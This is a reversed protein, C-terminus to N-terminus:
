QINQDIYDYIDQVLRMERATEEPIRVNFEKELAVVLDIGDLSDLGLDENLKATGTLIEEEIEFGEIFVTHVVKIVEEQTM